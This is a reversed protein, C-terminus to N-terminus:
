SRVRRIQFQDSYHGNRQFSYCRVGRHFIKDRGAVEEQNNENGREAGREGRGGRGGRIGRQAFMFGEGKGGTLTRHGSQGTRIQNYGIQQSTWILLEYADPVTTTYKDRGIYVGKRLEELLDGYRIKDARLIFCMAKFREKETNIEIPTCSVMDKGIIQPSCLIHGGGALIMNELISNFKNLYDDDSESQGQRTTM